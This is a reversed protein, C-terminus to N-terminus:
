LCLRSYCRHNGHMFGALLDVFLGEYLRRKTMAGTGEPTEHICGQLMGCTTM